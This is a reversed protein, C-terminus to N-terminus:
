SQETSAMEEHKSLLRIEGSSTVSKGHLNDQNLLCERLSVPHGPKPIRTGIEFPTLGKQPRALLLKLIVLVVIRVITGGDALSTACTAEVFNIGRASTYVTSLVTM